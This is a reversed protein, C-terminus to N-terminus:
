LVTRSQHIPPIADLLWVTKDDGSNSMRPPSPSANAFHPSARLSSRGTSPKEFSNSLSSHCHYGILSPHGASVLSPKHRGSGVTPEPTRVVRGQRTSEGSSALTCIRVTMMAGSVLVNLGYGVRTGAVFAFGAFNREILNARGITRPQHTTKSCQLSFGTQPDRLPKDLHKFAALRLQIRRCYASLLQARRM